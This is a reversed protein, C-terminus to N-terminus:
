KETKHGKFIFHLTKNNSNTVKRSAKSTFHEFDEDGDEEEEAGDKAIVHIGGRRGTTTVAWTRASAAGTSGGFVVL